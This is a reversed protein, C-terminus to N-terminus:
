CKYKWFYGGSLKRIGRCVMSVNKCGSIRVAEKMSSFETIVQNTLPDIQLVSKYLKSSKSLRKKMKQRKEVSWGRRDLNNEDKYKWVYGGSTRLKGRCCASINSSHISLQDSADSISCYQQIIEGTTKNIQLVEKKLSEKQEESLPIMKKKKSIKSRTEKTHSFGFVGEGGLTMNYGNKFTDLHQIAFKEIENLLNPPASAYVTVSFSDKGYKRIARHITFNDSGISSSRVHGCVRSKLNGSTKGVYMKDNIDNKIVYVVSVITDDFNDLKKWNSYDIYM